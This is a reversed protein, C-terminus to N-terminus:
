GPNSSFSPVRMLARWFERASQTREAVRPRLASAIPLAYPSPVSRALRSPKGALIEDNTFTRPTSLLQNLFLLGAHYVDTQPGVAGLKPDLHEPPLMWEAMTQTLDGALKSLGLDGIKFTVMQAEGTAPADGVPRVLVNGPHLDKHVYGRAHIFDLGQLVDRALYPIWADGRVMPWTLLNGACREIVLYFTDRYSFADHVYTINPHRLNLLSALESLWLKRVEEYPRRPLLVKAVLSNGWEDTCEYVAGFYGQGILGGVYYLRGDCEVREGFQPPSFLKPASVEPALPPRPIWPNTDM